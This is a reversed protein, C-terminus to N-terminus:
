DTDGLRFMQRIYLTMVGLMLIVTIISIASGQSYHSKAFAEQYAYIPLNYYALEPKSERMVYAQTFMGVDWIVSLTTVIAVLPRIVPFRVNRFVAWAGAGDVVAAEVLEKPVQTLGAYLSIALFPIAGWIVLLIIITWGQLPNIFWSHNTFNVGPILNLFWNLVGFDTDVLWYFIQTSVLQPMSWVLMMAVIMTIRVWTSVRLMLLAIAQGLIVSVVVCIAAVVATRVVVTWFFSDGLVGSYNSLGVWPPATGLFLNRQSMNQFSLVIM